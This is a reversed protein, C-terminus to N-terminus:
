TKTEVCLYDRRCIPCEDHEMLWDLICDLHFAHPCLDNNSWAIEDGVKYRDLCIPCTKPSYLSSTNNITSCTRRSSECYIDDKLDLNHVNDKDGNTGDNGIDVGADDNTGKIIGNKSLRHILCLGSSMSLFNTKAEASQLSDSDSFSEMALKRRSTQKEHPLIVDSHQGDSDSGRTQKSSLVRKHIISTLVKLRRLEKDEDSMTKRRTTTNVAELRREYQYKVVAWFLLTFSFIVTTSITFIRVPDARSASSPTSPYNGRPGKTPKLKPGKTSKRYPTKNSKKITSPVLTTSPQSSVSPRITPVSSITISSPTPSINPSGSGGHVEIDERHVSMSMGVIAM